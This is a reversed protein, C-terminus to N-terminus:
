RPPNWPLSTVQLTTTIPVRVLPCNGRYERCWSPSGQTQWHWSDGHWAPCSGPHGWRGEPAATDGSLPRTDWQAGRGERCPNQATSAGRCTCHSCTQLSLLCHWQWPGQKSVLPGVPRLLHPSGPGM